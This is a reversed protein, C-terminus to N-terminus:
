LPGVFTDLSFFAVATPKDLASWSSGNWRAIRSGPTGGATTFNGGAHLDCGNLVLAKRINLFYYLSIISIM